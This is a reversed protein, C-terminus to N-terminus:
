IRDPPLIKSILGKAVGIRMTGLIHRILFKAEDKSGCM